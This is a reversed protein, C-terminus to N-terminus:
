FVFLRIVIIYDNFQVVGEQFVSIGDRLGVEGWKLM